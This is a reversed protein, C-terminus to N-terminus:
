DGLSVVLKGKDSGVSIITGEDLDAAAPGLAAGNVFTPNIAKSLDEIAWKCTVRNKFVRFQEESYYQAEGSLALQVSYKGIVTDIRIKIAKGGEAATLILLAPFKRYGCGRCLPNDDPNEAFGCDPCKWAM